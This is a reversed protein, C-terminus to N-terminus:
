LFKLQALKSGRAVMDGERVFIDIVDCQRPAKIQAEMKMAELIIITDGEKLGSGKRVQVSVVKAPFNSTVLENVTAVDSKESSKSIESVKQGFAPKAAKVQEGNILLEISGPRRSLEKVQYIKNDISLIISDSDRREILIKRGRSSGEIMVEYSGTEPLKSLSVKSIRGNLSIESQM